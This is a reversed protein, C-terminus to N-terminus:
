EEREKKEKKRKREGWEGEFFLFLLWPDYM